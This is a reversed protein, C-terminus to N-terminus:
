NQLLKTWCRWHKFACTLAGGLLFDQPIAAPTKIRTLVSLLLNDARYFLLFRVLSEAIRMKRTATAETVIKARSM